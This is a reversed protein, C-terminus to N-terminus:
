EATFMANVYSEAQPPNVEWGEIIKTFINRKKCAM